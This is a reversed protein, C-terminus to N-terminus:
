SSSHRGDFSSENTSDCLFVVPLRASARMKVLDPFGDTNVQIKQLQQNRLVAIFGRCCARAMNIVSVREGRQRVALRSLAIQTGFECTGEVIRRLTDDVLDANLPRALVAASLIHAPLPFAAEIIADVHLVGLADIIQRYEARTIKVNKGAELIAVTRAVAVRRTPHSTGEDEMALRDAVSRARGADIANLTVHVPVNRHVKMWVPKGHAIVALCRHQGDTMRGTEDFVLGHPSLLWEDRDMQRKYNAVLPSSVKRNTYQTRLFEQAMAPTILLTEEPYDGHRSDFAM